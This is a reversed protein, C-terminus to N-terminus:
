WTADQDIDLRKAVVSIPRFNPATGTQPPPSPDGDLVNDGSGLGVGMVLKIKIWEVTQGSYVLTVSLVSLVAYSLCRDSLIPRVTKCVTAWFISSGCILSSFSVVSHSILHLPRWKWHTKNAAAATMSLWSAFNEKSSATELVFQWHWFYSTYTVVLNNM